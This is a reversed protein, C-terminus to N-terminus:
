DHKGEKEALRLSADKEESAIIILFMTFLSQDENNYIVNVTKHSTLETIKNEFFGDTIEWCNLLWSTPVDAEWMGDSGIFANVHEQSIIELVLLFSVWIPVGTKNCMTKIQNFISESVELGYLAWTYEDPYLLSAYSESNHMAGQVLWIKSFANSDAPLNNGRHPVGHLGYSEYEVNGTSDVIISLPLDGDRHSKGDDYWDLSFVGDELAQFTAPMGNYSHLNGQANFTAYFNDCVRIIPPRNQSRYSKGHDYWHFEYLKQKSGDPLYFDLANMESKTAIPLDDFSHLKGEADFTEERYWEEPIAEPNYQELNSPLNTFFKSM